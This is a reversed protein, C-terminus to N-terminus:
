CCIVEVRRGLNKLYFTQPSIYLESFFSLLMCLAGLDGSGLWLSQSTLPPLLIAYWARSAGLLIHPNNQGSSLGLHLLAEDFVLM